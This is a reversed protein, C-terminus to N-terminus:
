WLLNTKKVHAFIRNVDITNVTAGGGVVNACDLEYDELAKQKKVHAFARNVDITNVRGDGNIDGLLHIKVDLAADADEVTIEYIRTAHDKKSVEVTYTGASVGSFVYSGNTSSVESIQVTGDLLRLTVADAETGYSTIDGSINVGNMVTVSGESVTYSIQQSDENLLDQPLYTVAIDCKGDEPKLIKFKLNAIVGDGIVDTTSYWLFTVTSEEKNVSNALTGSTLVAGKEVSVFELTDADYTIRFRFTAIGPNNTIMVPLTITEGTKGSVNGFDVSVTGAAFAPVTLISLIMLLALVSASLRFRINMKKM